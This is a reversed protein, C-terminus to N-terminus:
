GKLDLLQDSFDHLPEITNDLEFTVEDFGKLESLEGKLLALTSKFPSKLHMLLQDADDEFIRGKIAGLNQFLAYFEISKQQTKESQTKKIQAYGSRDEFHLPITLINHELSLLMNSVFQFENKDQTFMLRELLFTKLKTGPKEQTILNEFQKLSFMFFPDRDMLRPQRVLNELLIAQKPASSKMEAWYNLGPKLDQFSKIEMQVKGLQTWYKLSSLKSLVKLSVPLTSNFETTKATNLLQQIKAMNQISQIM